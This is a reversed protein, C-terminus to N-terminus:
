TSTSPRHFQEQRSISRDLSRSMCAASAPCISTFETLARIADPADVRSCPRYGRSAFFNPATTTLLFLRHVGAAVARAEIARMLVDGLGASRREHAVALSRLLGADGARELGVCGVLSGGARLVLFDGMHGLDLDIEPLECTRLLSRIKTLDAASALEPKM